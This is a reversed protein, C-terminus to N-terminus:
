LTGCSLLLIDHRLLCGIMVLLGSMVVRLGRMVVSFRRLVVSRAIVLFGCMVSVNRVTVMKVGGLVRVVGRARVDLRM